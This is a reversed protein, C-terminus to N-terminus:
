FLYFNIGLVFNEVQKDMFDKTFYQNGLIKENKLIQYVDLKVYEKLLPNSLKRYSFHWSEYKYGKRFKNNTYVLYFGFKHAHNDLWKKFSNKKNNLPDNPNKKYYDVIDIETGWHHRSTGPLATYELVKKVAEKDSYGQKKFNLFKRKWIRNQHSFSRYASIVQIRIGDKLAAKKMLELADYAEKQLRYTKGKLLPQIASSKGLLIGTKTNQALISFSFFLFLLSTTRIKM